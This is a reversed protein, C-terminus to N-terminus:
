MIHKTECAEYFASLAGVLPKVGEHGLSLHEAAEDLLAGEDTIFVGAQCEKIIANILHAKCIINVISEESTSCGQATYFVLAGIVINLKAEV